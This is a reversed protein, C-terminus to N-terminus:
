SFRIIINTGPTINLIDALPGRNMAIELYDSANFLAILEGPAVDQYRTSIRTLKHRHSAVFLEFPRNKGVREFEEHTVNTILNKFNDIFMVTGTISHEHLSPLLPTLKTYDSTDPGLDGLPHGLSLHASAPALTGLTPFSPFVEGSPTIRVVQEPPLTCIMGLLGNDPAVLYQQQYRAAICEQTTGQANHVAICHVTGAPFHPLSRAVVWAAQPLHFPPIHHSLDVVSADPNLQHLRGRVIGTYYDDGWDTTLTIIPM